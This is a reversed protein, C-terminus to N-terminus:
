VFILCFEFDLNYFPAQFCSTQPDSLNYKQCLIAPLVTGAQYKQCLIAPLVTGAQGVLAVVAEYGVRLKDDEVM